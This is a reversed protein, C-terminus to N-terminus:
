LYIKNMIGNTNEEKSVNNRMRGNKLIGVM